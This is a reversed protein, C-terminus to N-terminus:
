LSRHSSFFEFKPKSIELAAGETAKLTKGLCMAGIVVFGSSLALLIEPYLVELIGFVCLLLSVSFFTIPALVAGKVSLWLLSGELSRQQKKYYAIEKQMTDIEKEDKIRTSLSELTEKLESVRRRKRSISRSIERGLYSVSIAYVAITISILAIDLYSLLLLIQFINDSMVQKKDLKSYLTKKENLQHEKGRYKRTNDTSIQALYFVKNLLKNEIDQCKLVSSKGWNSILSIIRSFKM